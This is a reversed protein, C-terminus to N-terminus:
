DGTQQMIHAVAVAVALDVMVLLLELDKLDVEAEVPM